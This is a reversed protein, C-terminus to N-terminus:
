NYPFFTYSQVSDGTRAKEMVLSEFTLEAPLPKDELHDHDSEDSSLLGSDSDDLLFCERIDAEDDTESESESESEINFAKNFNVQTRYFDVDFSDESDDESESTDVLWSRYALEFELANSDDESDTDSSAHGGFFRVSPVGMRRDTVRKKLKPEKKEKFTPFLGEFTTRVVKESHECQGHTEWKGFCLWCFEGRCNECTMHDCGGNKEIWVLCYPCQKAVDVFAVDEGWREKLQDKYKELCTKEPHYPGNCGACFKTECKICDMEFTKLNDATPCCVAPITFGTGCNVKPCFLFNECKKLNFKMMSSIYNRHAIPAMEKVRDPTLQQDCNMGPCKLEPRGLASTHLMFKDFCDPCAMCPLCTYVDDKYRQHNHINLMEEKVTEVTDFCISCRMATNVCLLCEDFAANLVGKTLDVQTQGLTKDHKGEWDTGDVHNKLSSFSHTLTEMKTYMNDWKKEIRKSKLENIQTMVEEICEAVDLSWLKKRLLYFKDSYVAPVFGCLTNIDEFNVDPRKNENLSATIVELKEDLFTKHCANRKEKLEEEPVDIAKAFYYTHCDKRLGFRCEKCGKKLCTFPDSCKKWRKQFMQSVCSRCYKQHSCPGMSSFSFGHWEELQCTTCVHYEGDNFYTDFRSLYAAYTRITDLEDVEWKKDSFIEAWSSWFKEPKTLLKRCEEVYRRVFKVSPHNGAWSERDENDYWADFELFRQMTKLHKLFFKFIQLDNITVNMDAFEAGQDIISELGELQLKKACSVISLFKHVNLKQISDLNQFSPLINTNYEDMIFKGILLRNTENTLLFDLNTEVYKLTLEPPFFPDFLFSNSFSPTETATAM